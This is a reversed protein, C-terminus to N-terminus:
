SPALDHCTSSSNAMTTSIEIKPYHNDYSEEITNCYAFPELNKHITIEIGHHPFKICKHYTSPVVKMAHIWPRALLVNFPLNLVVVHFITEQTAPRVRIPLLITEKTTWELNDNAKISIVENIIKEETYGVQTIFKLTCLNLTSGNDIMVRKVVFNSVM